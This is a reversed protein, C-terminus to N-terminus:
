RPRAHDRLWRAYTAEDMQGAAVALMTVVCAGDDADLDKGKLAMLLEAAVFATRKNGDVFPHDRSGLRMPPLRTPLM